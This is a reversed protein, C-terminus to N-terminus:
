FSLQLCRSTPGITQSKGSAGHSFSPRRKKKFQCKSTSDLSVYKNHCLNIVKLRFQFFIYLNGFLTLKVHTTKKGLCKLKDQYLLIAAHIAKFLKNKQTEVSIWSCYIECHKNNKSINCKNLHLYRNLMKCDGHFITAVTQIWAIM